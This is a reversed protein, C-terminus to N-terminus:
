RRERKKRHAAAQSESVRRVTHDYSTGKYYSAQINTNAKQQYPAYHPPSGTEKLFAGVIIIAVAGAFLSLMLYVAAGNIARRKKELRARTPLVPSVEIVELLGYFGACLPFIAWVAVLYHHEFNSTLGITVGLAAAAIGVQFVATGLM